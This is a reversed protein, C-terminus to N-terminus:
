KVVGPEHQSSLFTEQHIARAIKIIEEMQQDINKQTAGSFIMQKLLEIKLHYAMKLSKAKPNIPM